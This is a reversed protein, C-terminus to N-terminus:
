QRTLNGLERLFLITKWVEDEKTVDKFPPMATQLPIGGEAITWYLYGDPVNHMKIFMTINAPPPKLDKGAEGDGLGTMGHCLACNKEYSKKGAAINEANKELPNVKSAYEPDIGNRMVFHHRIMSMNMMGKGQMQGYAQFSVLFAGATMILALSIRMTIDFVNRM